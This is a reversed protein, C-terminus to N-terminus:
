LIVIMFIGSGACILPADNGKRWKTETPEFKLERGRVLVPTTIEQKVDKSITGGPPRVMVLPTVNEAEETPQTLFDLSFSPITM